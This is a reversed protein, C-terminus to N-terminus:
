PILGIVFGASALNAIAEAEDAPARPPDPVIVDLMGGEPVWAVASGLSADVLLTANSSRVYYALCAREGYVVLTGPSLSTAETPRIM